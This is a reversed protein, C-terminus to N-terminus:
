GNISDSHSAFFRFDTVMSSIMVTVPWLLLLSFLTAKARDDRLLSNIRTLETKSHNFVAGFGSGFSIVVSPNFSTTDFFQCRFTVWGNPSKTSTSTRHLAFDKCIPANLTPP